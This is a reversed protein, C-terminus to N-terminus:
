SRRISLLDETADKMYRYADEVGQNYFEPGLQEVIFDLMLGAALDGIEEGRERSFYDRIGTIMETRREKHLQLPNEKQM